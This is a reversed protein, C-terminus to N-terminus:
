ELRLSEVVEQYVKLEEPSADKKAKVLSVSFAQASSTGPNVYTVFEYMEGPLVFAGM